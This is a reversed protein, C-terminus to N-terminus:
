KENDVHDFIVKQTRDKIVFVKKTIRFENTIIRTLPQGRDNKMESEIMVEDTIMGDIYNVGLSDFRIAYLPISRHHVATFTDTIIKKLYKDGYNVNKTKVFYYDIYRYKKPNNLTTDITDLDNEYNIKGDYLENVFVTDPFVFSIKYNDSRELIRKEKKCSILTLFLATFFFVLKKM